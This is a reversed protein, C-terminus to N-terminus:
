EGPGVWKGGKIVAVTNGADDQLRAGEPQGNASPLDKPLSVNHPNAGEQSAADAYHFPVVNHPDFGDRMAAAQAQHVMGAVQRDLFDASLKAAQAMVALQDTSLFGGNQVKKSLVEAQQWLSSHQNLMQMQFSRIARGGNFAQTFQDAAVAETVSGDQLGKLTNDIEASSVGAASWSKYIPDATLKERIRAEGQVKQEPTMRLMSPATKAKIEEMARYQDVPSLQQFRPDKFLQGYVDQLKKQEELKPMEGELKTAWEQRQLNLHEVAEYGGAQLRALGTEDGFATMKGRLEAEAERVANAHEEVTMKDRRDLRAMAEDYAKQQFNTLQIANDSAIKWTKFAQDAANQDGQRFATVVDAAANMATTLPTRTMLSGLGAIAMAMSGWVQMPETQKIKPEPPQNLSPPTLRDRSVESQRLETAEIQDASRLDSSEADLATKLDAPRQSQADLVKKAADAPQPSTLASVGDAM